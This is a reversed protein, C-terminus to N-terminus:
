GRGPRRAEPLDAGADALLRFGYARPIEMHGVRTAEVRYAPRVFAAVEGAARLAHEVAGALAEAGPATGTGPRYLVRLAGGRASLLARASAPDLARAERLLGADRAVSARLWPVLTAASGYTADFLHIERPQGALGPLLRLLASGGGSHATLVLRGPAIQPIGSRGALERLAASSLAAVGGPSVLAPFDYARGSRGGIFRGHPLLGLTPRTRGLADPRGPDCFDLGTFAERDRLRLPVGTALAFGHLHLVVDMESAIRNARLVLDPEGEPSGPTRHAALLALRPVEVRVSCPSPSPRPRRPARSAAAAPAPGHLYAM